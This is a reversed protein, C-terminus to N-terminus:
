KQGIIVSYFSKMARGKLAPIMYICVLRHIPKLGIGLFWLDWVDIVLVPNLLAFHVVRPKEGDKFRKRSKGFATFSVPSYKPASAGDNQPTKYGV